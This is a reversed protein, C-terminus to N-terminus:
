REPENRHTRQKGWEKVPHKREYERRLETRLLNLINIMIACSKTFLVVNDAFLMRKWIVKFDHVIM